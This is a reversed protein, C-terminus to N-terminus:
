SVIFLYFLTPTVKKHQITLMPFWLVNQFTKNRLHIKFFLLFVLDKNSCHICLLHLLVLLISSTIDDYQGASARCDPLAPVHGSFRRTVFVLDSFTSSGHCSTWFENNWKIYSLMSTENQSLSLSLSFRVFVNPFVRLFGLLVITTSIVLFM